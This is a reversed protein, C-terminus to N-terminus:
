YLILALAIGFLAGLSRYMKGNKDRIEKADNQNIELNIITTKFHKQQDNIDSTGLVRALSLMVEIDDNQLSLKNKTRELNYKFSEFLSKDKNDLLYEKIDKFLFSVRANGKIYINELADPLQNSSYVIETELMQICNQIYILNNLRETYKRSYELGILASSGIIILSGLLKLTIM